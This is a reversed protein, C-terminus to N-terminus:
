APTAEGVFTMKLNLLVILVTINDTSGKDYAKQVLDRTTQELTLGGVLKDYVFTAAEMNNFVDWLGDSALLFFQDRETVVWETIEPDVIVGLM